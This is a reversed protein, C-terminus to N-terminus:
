EIPEAQVALVDYQYAIRRLQDRITPSSVTDAQERVEAAKQRYYEGSQM